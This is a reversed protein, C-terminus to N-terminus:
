NGGIMKILRWVLTFPLAVLFLCGATATLTCVLEADTTLTGGYVYQELLAYLNQYIGM